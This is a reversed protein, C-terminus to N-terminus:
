VLDSTPLTLHTYSVATTKVWKRRRLSLLNDERMLRLTRKHNIQWGERKLLRTIYRYGRKRYQLALQQLRDRVTMEEDGPKETEWGRYYSARSVGSLQCM